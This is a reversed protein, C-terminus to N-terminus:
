HMCALAKKCRSRVEFAFEQTSPPALQGRRYRLGRASCQQAFHDFVSCQRVACHLLARGGPALRHKLVAAVLDAHVREYM